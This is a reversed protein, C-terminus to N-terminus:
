GYTDWENYEGYPDGDTYVYGHNDNYNFHSMKLDPIDGKLMLGFLNRAEVEDYVTRLKEYADYFLKYVRKWENPRYTNADVLVRRKQASRNKNTSKVRKKDKHKNSDGEHEQDDEFRVGRPSDLKIINAIDSKMVNFSDEDKFDETNGIYPLRDVEALDEKHKDLFSRLQNVAERRIQSEGMVTLRRNRKVNFSRGRKSEVLRDDCSEDDSSLHGDRSGQIAWSIFNGSNMNSSGKSVAGAYRLDGNKLVALVAGGSDGKKLDVSVSFGDRNRDVRFKDIVNIMPGRGEDTNLFVLLSTDMVEDKVINPIMPAGVYENGYLTYHGLDISVVPDSTQNLPKADIEAVYHDDFVMSCQRPFMHKLSLM